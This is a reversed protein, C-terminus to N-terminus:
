HRFVLISENVHRGWYQGWLDVLIQVSYRGTKKVNEKAVTEKLLIPVALGTRKSSVSPM